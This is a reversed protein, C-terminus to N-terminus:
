TPWRGPFGRKGPGMLFRPSNKSSSGYYESAAEMGGVTRAKARIKKGRMM